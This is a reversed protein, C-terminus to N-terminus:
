KLGLSEAVVPDVTLKGNEWKRNLGFREDWGWVAWGVNHERLVQGFDRFWAARHEPKANVPFVGFEGCYLPVNNTKGWDIARKFNAAMKEKNWRERGYQALMGRSKPFEDLAALLPAVADPDAPYPVHRLQKVDTGTWTAGQHTFAFPDYTHFSYIINKDPLPKLKLLGDIGGWNPGSTIITHRPANERIAAVLRENLPAWESERKSFVPENVVELITMDPDFASLRRAFSKWFTVFAEQWAPNMEDERNENHLDVVVLLGARHFRRIANDVHIAREELVAGTAPDMIIRPAICLRAHTLGLKRMSAAEADGIYNAFHEATQSKPWRFWSCVNAGRALRDLRVQPVGDLAAQAPPQVPTQAPPQVPTQAPAQAARPTKTQPQTACSVCFVIATFFAIVAAAPKPTNRLLFLKM